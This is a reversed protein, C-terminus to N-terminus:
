TMFNAMSLLAGGISMLERSQAAVLSVNRAMMSRSLTM